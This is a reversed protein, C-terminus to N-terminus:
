AIHKEEKWPLSAANKLDFSPLLYFNYHM